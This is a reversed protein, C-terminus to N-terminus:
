CDNCAENVQVLVNAPYVGYHSGCEIESISWTKLEVALLDASAVSADDPMSTTANLIASVDSLTEIELSTDGIRVDVPTVLPACEPTGLREAGAFFARVDGLSCGDCSLTVSATLM